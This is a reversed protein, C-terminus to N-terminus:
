EVSPAGGEFYLQRMTVVTVALLMDVVTAEEGFSKELADRLFPSFGLTPVAAANGSVMQRLHDNERYWHFFPNMHDRPPEPQSFPKMGLEIRIRNAWGKATRKARQFPTPPKKKSSPLVRTTEVELAEPYKTRVWAEYFLHGHRLEVPITFATELVSVDLFPSAGYTFHNRLLHTSLAGLFGRINIVQMEANSFSAHSRAETFRHLKSYMASDYDPPLVEPVKSSSGAVIDGLQGTHELGLLKFNLRELVAKGGTIGAYYAAGSNLRLFSEPRLLCNGGDLPYYLLDNGLYESVKTAIRREKSHSDSYSINTVSTAGLSRIGVNTMRSDLGASMDVLHSEYGYEEDKAVARSVAARFAGDFREIHGELSTSTDPEYSLEWYPYTRVETSEEGSLSILAVSGPLVRKLQSIFTTDDTMYGYSLMMKAAAEDFSYGIGSAHAVRATLDLSNTLWWANGNKFVYAATDGTQNGFCYVVKDASDFFVGSFPGKFQSLTDAVGHTTVMRHLLEPLEECGERQLLDKKNLLVGDLLFFWEDQKAFCRDAMFRGDPARLFSLEGYDQREYTSPLHRLTATPVVLWNNADLTAPGDDAAATM